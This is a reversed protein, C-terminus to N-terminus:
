MPCTLRLPLVAHTLSFSRVLAPFCLLLVDLILVVFYGAFSISNWEESSYMSGSTM